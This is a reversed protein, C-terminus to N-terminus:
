SDELVLLSGAKFRKSALYVDWDWISHDTDIISGQRLIAVHYIHERTNSVYLIGTETEPDDRGQRKIALEVGLESAVMRMQTLSMGTECPAVRAAAILVEEYSLGTLSALTAIACDADNRQAVLRLVPAYDPSPM